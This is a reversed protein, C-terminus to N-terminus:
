KKFVEHTTLACFAERAVYYGGYTNKDYAMVCEFLINKVSNDEIRMIDLSFLLEAIYGSITSIMFEAFGINTIGADLMDKYYVINAFPIEIVTTEENDTLLKQKKFTLLHGFEHILSEIDTPVNVKAYLLNSDLSKFEGCEDFAFSIAVTAIDPIIPYMPNIKKRLVGLEKESDVAYIPTKSLTSILEEFGQEGLLLYYGLIAVTLKEKLMNDELTQIKLDKLFLKTRNIINNVSQYDVM